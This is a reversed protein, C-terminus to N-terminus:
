ARSEVIVVAKQVIFSGGGQRLRVIPKIVDTVVLGETGTGAISAECDTRTENYPQGLPNEVELGMEAFANHIRDLNRAMSHSESLRGIKKELDFLQNVIVLWQAPLQSPM